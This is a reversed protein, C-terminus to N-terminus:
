NDLDKKLNRLKLGCHMLLYVYIALMVGWFVAFVNSVNEDFVRLVNPLVCCMFIILIPLMRTKIIHQLMNVRSANDSFIEGDNETTVKSAPKRFFLWGICKGVYEWGYDQVMQMYDSTENFNKYDLRYIVDEPKCKEFRYVCPFITKTLKWGKKHEERLWAEEENFDAITYYRVKYKTDSM